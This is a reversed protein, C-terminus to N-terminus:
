GVLVGGCSNFCRGDPSYTFKAGCKPCIKFKREPESEEIPKSDEIVEEEIFEEFTM